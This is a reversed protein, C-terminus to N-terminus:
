RRSSKPAIMCASAGACESAPDSEGEDADFSSPCIKSEHSTLHHSSCRFFPSFSDYVLTDLMCTM